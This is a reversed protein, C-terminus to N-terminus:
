AHRADAEPRDGPHAARWVADSACLDSWAGPDAVAGRLAFDLDAPPYRWWAAMVQIRVELSAPNLRPDSATLDRLM